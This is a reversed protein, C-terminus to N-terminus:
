PVKAAVCVPGQASNYCRYVTEKYDNGDGQAKVLWVIDTDNDPGARLTHSGLPVFAVRAPLCGAALMAIAILMWRNTM